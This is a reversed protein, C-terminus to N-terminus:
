VIKNDENDFKVTKIISVNCVYQIFILLPSLLLPLIFTPPRCLFGKKESEFYVSIVDFLITYIILTIVTLIYTLWKNKGNKRNFIHAMGYPVLLFPFLILFLEM